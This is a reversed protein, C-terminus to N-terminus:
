VTFAVEGYYERTTEIAAQITATKAGAAGFTVTQVGNTTFTLSAPTADPGLTVIINARYALPPSCAVEVTLGTTPLIEIACVGLNAIHRLWTANGGRARTYGPMSKPTRGGPGRALTSLKKLFEDRRGAPLREILSREKQLTITGARPTVRPRAM